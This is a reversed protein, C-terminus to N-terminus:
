ANAKEEICGISVVLGQRRAQRVWKFTEEKTASPISFGYAGKPVSWTNISFPGTGLVQLSDKSVSTGWNRSATRKSLIM